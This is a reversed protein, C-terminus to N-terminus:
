IFDAFSKETRRFHVWGWSFILLSFVFSIGLAMYNLPEGLLCWRFGNIIGTMPNVSFWFQWKADIVNSNFGVPSIYLGFQLLFPIIYRFDRYKVNLSTLLLSVGFAFVLLLFIFIPLFVFNVDPYFGFFIMIALLLILTILFDIFCTLISSAPIIMRPFYVKTILSTNGILSSSADNISSSFFQWPLMGTLVMIFYPYDGYSKFHAIRSFVITFIISSLLPRLVLWLLGLYTQKYKVKIDRWTLIYFLEKFRKIDEFYNKDSRKPAIIIDWDNSKL